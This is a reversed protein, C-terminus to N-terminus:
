YKIEFTLKRTESSVKHMLVKYENGQKLTKGENLYDLLEKLSIEKEM